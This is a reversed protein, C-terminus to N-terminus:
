VGLARKLKDVAEQHKNKCMKRINLVKWKLAPLGQLELNPMLLWDPEGLKVSLLFRRENESLSKNIEAILRERVAVFEAYNIVVNTMGLFEQQFLQEQDLLNPQLLESIPRSGSALYVVFAQRIQDTIGGNEFLIKVDFIDRPHQRSLAACFKGAYLDEPSLMPVNSVSIDFIQEAKPVLNKVVAPFVTGRLVENPEVKIMVEDRVVLLKALRKSKVLRKELVKIGDKSEIKSKITSLASAIGNLSVARDEIPLYTLDIDVSFRPMDQLFLNIATGGKLAFCKEEAVEPMVDLLLKVQQFYHNNYENPM